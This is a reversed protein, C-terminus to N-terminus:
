IEKGETKRKFLEVSRMTSNYIKKSIDSGLDLIQLFTKLSDKFETREGEINYAIDFAGNTKGRLLDFENYLHIHTTTSLKKAINKHPQKSEWNDLRILQLRCDINGHPIISLQMEYNSFPNLIDSLQIHVLYDNKTYKLDDECSIIYGVILKNDQIACKGIEFNYNTSYVDPNCIFNGQNERFSIEDFSISYLNKFNEILDKHNIEDVSFDVFGHYDPMIGTDYYTLLNKCFVLRSFDTRMQKNSHLNPRFKDFSGKLKRACNAKIREFLYDDREPWAAQDIEFISKDDIYDYLSYIVESFEIDYWSDDKYIKDLLKHKKVYLILNKIQNFENLYTGDKVVADEIFKINMNFLDHPKRMKLTINYDRIEDEEVGDFVFDVLLSDVPMMVDEFYSVINEILRHDHFSSDEKSVFYSGVFSSQQKIYEQITNIFDHSGGWQYQNYFFDFMKEAEIIDENKYTEYLKDIISFDM